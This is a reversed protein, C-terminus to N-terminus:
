MSRKVGRLVKPADGHSYIRFFYVGAPLSQTNVPQGPNDVRLCLKGDAAYIEVRVIRTFGKIEVQSDFTGPYLSIADGADMDANGVSIEETPSSLQGEDNGYLASVQYQSTLLPESDIFRKLSSSVTNIKVMNRYINYGTIEPFAAPSLSYLSMKDPLLASLAIQKKANGANSVAIESTGNRSTLPLEGEASTVVASIFFNVNFNENSDNEGYFTEWTQADYSYINGKGQVAPGGDCVVPYEGERGSLKSVFISVILDQTGDIIFPTALPVANLTEFLPNTIKQSYTRDGQAIYIEYTNNRVPVFKVEALTKKHFPRIDDRTWLQGFYFPKNDGIIIKIVAHVNGWYITQEYLPPEWLVAIKGSVTSVASVDTPAKYEPILISIRAFGSEQESAYVASLGYEHLGQEPTEDTFFLTTTEGIRRGNDYIHYKLPSGSSSAGWTLRVTKNQYTANLNVPTAPQGKHYRGQLLEVGSGTPDLWEDMHSKYKDWHYSIKGYLNLGSPNYCSSNGGTLSGVVLQNENFLPAGSSGKETISHGNATEDFVASWHANVDGKMNDDTIFTSSITPNKYTSIKLYDGAPCHLSVGSQAPKNRRDWGNYYVNYNEPIPMDILLLLGDSEGNTETFAMRSCGTMTKSLVIGSQSSCENLEYHFYFVWQKLDEASAETEIGDSACHNATLIYPKLDQATNNLLSASCIYSKSGVKQVMHCVGKKQSHWMDGEECNVNVECSAASARLSVTNESVSLHNYGYGVAEIEIRPAEDDPSAVYELTLEDGAVFETAFRGGSPHTRHTYAGLVQTKEANYIFLKGGEPIYFDSYYLMLALAGKARLNLQWIKEGDPLTSWTGANEPNFTADILTAVAPPAGQAAQWADVQKLDEVHFTVPIEETASSSRSTIQRQFGPPIGGESIQAFANMVQLVLIGTFSIVGKFITYKGNM